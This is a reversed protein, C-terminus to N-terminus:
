AQVIDPFTSPPPQTSMRPSLRVKSNALLRQELVTLNPSPTASCISANLKDFLSSMRSRIGPGTTLPDEAAHELSLLARVGWRIAVLVHTAGQAQWEGFAERDILARSANSLVDLQDASSTVISEYYMNGQIASQRPVNDWELPVLGVQM